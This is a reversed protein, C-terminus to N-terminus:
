LWGVSRAWALMEEQRARWDRPPPEGASDRRVRAVHEALPGLGVSRRLEDVRQPDEITWPVLRGDEDWDLQTGYRQPRRELFRIRDDLAAVQAPEVEGREAAERLFPLCRRQLAPSGIAHQLVLWTAGAADEGVLSRGPWGHEDVIEDLTAANRAHVEAMRPAYGRYLEGTAALEARVREDEERMALLRRALDRDIGRM